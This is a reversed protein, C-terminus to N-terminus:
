PQHERGGEADGAPAERLREAQGQRLLDALLSRRGEQRAALAPGEPRFGYVVNQFASGVPGPADHIDHGEGIFASHLKPGLTPEFQAQVWLPWWADMIRVADAHDYAGNNDHDLRHSGAKIWEKMTAIAATVQPDTVKPGKRLLKLASPVVALGRLDTTGASEMADILETLSM